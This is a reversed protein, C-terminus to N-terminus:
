TSSRNLHFTWLATGMLAIPAGAAISLWTGFHSLSPVREAFTPIAARALDLGFTLGLIVLARGSVLAWGATSVADDASTANGWGGRVDGTNQYHPDRSAERSARAARDRSEDWRTLVVRDGLGWWASAAFVLVVAIWTPWPSEPSRRALAVALAMPLFVIAGTVMFAIGRTRALANARRLISRALAPFAIPGRELSAAVLVIRGCWGLAAGGLLRVIADPNPDLPALLFSAPIPAVAAVFLAALATVIPTRLMRSVIAGLDANVARALM